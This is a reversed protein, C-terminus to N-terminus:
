GRAGECLCMTAKGLGSRALVFAAIRGITRDIGTVPRTQVVERGYSAHAATVSCGRCGQGGDSGALVQHHFPVHFSIVRAIAGEPDAVIIVLRRGGSPDLKPVVYTTPCIIPQGRGEPEVGVAKGERSGQGGTFVTDHFPLPVRRLLDGIHFEIEIAEIDPHHRVHGGVVKRHGGGIDGRVVVVPGAREVVGVIGM